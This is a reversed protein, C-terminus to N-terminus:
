TGYGPKMLERLAAMETDSLRESLPVPTSNSLQRNRAREEKLEAKVNALRRDLSEAKKAYDAREKRADRLQDELEQITADAQAQYALAKRVANVLLDMEDKPKPVKKRVSDQQNLRPKTGEHVYSRHAGAGAPSKFVKGCVQCTTRKGM